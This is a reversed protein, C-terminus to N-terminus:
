AMPRRAVVYFAARHYMLRGGRAQVTCCQEFFAQKLVAVAKAPSGALRKRSISSYTRQLNWFEEPSDISDARAEWATRVHTFGAKRM